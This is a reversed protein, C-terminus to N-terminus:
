KIIVVTGSYSQGEAQIQYIYVGGPVSVGNATGDWMVSNSVPGAPLNGAVVRGRLDLIKATVASDRPNDFTFVVNDNKHDGNPSLFRNSVGAMNFSFGGTREVTRLQFKGFFETKVTMTQALPDLTGSLQVWNVGNFWYVSMNSPTKAVGNASFGSTTVQSSASLDYHLSIVGPQSLSFTPALLHGGMYADFELSKVVSGNLGGLDQARSSANILYASDPNVPVGEIPQIEPADVKYYSQDDPAVVYAAKTGVTRIVSRESYSSDNQARVHYYYQPGSALDTWTLTATSLDAVDNWVGLIPTTARYVSYGYLEDTTPASSVAFPIQDVFRVVPMWRLTATGPATTLAVGYPAQPQHIPVILDLTVSSAAVSELAVGDYRPRGRDVATVKVIYTGTSLGTFLYTTAPADVVTTSSHSFNYPPTSDFYIKYYDLDYASVSSWSVRFSKSSVEVATMGLPAPPAADYVLTSAQVAPPISNLDAGSINGANDTSIMMAYYTVGPWLQNLLLYQTTGPFAPAPPIVSVAPAPLATVDMANNWWTTTSGGVSTVSFTAIRIQYGSAPSSAAFVYNNSDPATWQLMLQGEAGPSAALDDVPSPPWVDRPTITVTLSDSTARAPGVLGALCLLAGAATLLGARLGRSLRSALNPDM